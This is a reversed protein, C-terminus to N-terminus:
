ILCEKQYFRIGNENLSYIEYGKGDYEKQVLNLSDLKNLYLICKDYSLNCKMAINTRKLKTYRLVIIMRELIRMNIRKLKRETVIRQM